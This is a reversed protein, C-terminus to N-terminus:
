IYLPQESYHSQEQPESEQLLHPHQRWLDYQELFPNHPKLSGFAHEWLSQNVYQGFSSEQQIVKWFCAATLSPNLGLQRMWANNLFIDFSAWLHSHSMKPLADWYVPSASSLPDDMVYHHLGEFLARFETFHEVLHTFAFRSNTQAQTNWENECRLAFIRELLELVFTPNWREPHKKFQQQWQKQVDPVHYYPLIIYEWEFLSYAASEKDHPNSRQIFPVLKKAKAREWWQHINM